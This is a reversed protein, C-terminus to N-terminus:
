PAEVKWHDLYAGDMSDIRIGATGWSYVHDTTDIALQGDLTLKLEDGIAEFRITHWANPTPAGFQPLIVLETYVGCQKRQIQATGDTRWSGVYLDDETRYRAFAKFGPNGDNGVQATYYFRYETAQDTWKAAHAPDAAFGLAVVRFYGDSTAQIRGRTYNGGGTTTATLCGDTVDLYPVASKDTSCEITVPMTTGYNTFDEDGDPYLSTPGVWPMAAVAGNPYRGRAAYPSYTGAGYTPCTSPQEDVGTADVACGALALALALGRM